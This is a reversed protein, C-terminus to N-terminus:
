PTAQRAARELDRRSPYRWIEEPDAGLHYAVIARLRDSPMIAGTEIRHITAERVGCRNALVIKTLNHAIRRQRVDSGCEQAWPGDPRFM